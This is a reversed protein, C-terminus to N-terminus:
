LENWNNVSVGIYLNVLSVIFLLSNNMSPPHAIPHHTPQIESAKNLQATKIPIRRIVFDILSGRPFILAVGAQQILIPANMTVASENVVKM